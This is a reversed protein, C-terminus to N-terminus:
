CLSITESMRIPLRRLMEGGVIKEMNEGARLEVERALHSHRQAETVSCGTNALLLNHCFPCDFELWQADSLSRDTQQDDLFYIYGALNHCSVSVVHKKM